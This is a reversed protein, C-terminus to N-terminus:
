DSVREMSALDTNTRVYDAALMFNDANTATDPRYRLSGATNVFLPVRNVVGNDIGEIAPNLFWDHLMDDPLRDNPEQNLHSKLEGV